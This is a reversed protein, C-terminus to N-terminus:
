DQMFSYPPWPGTLSLQFGQAVLNRAERAAATKLRPSASRPVLFAADLVLPGGEASLETAPRRRAEAALQSWREFLETAVARARKARNVVDDRLAKKQQLYGSGSAPLRPTDTRRSAAAPTRALSLRMGWEHMRSVRAVLRDIQARQEDIHRLARGDDSFMTFLKMPLVADATLFSAVVREHAVAARSVWNLDAMGRALEAEGYHELPVDSVALWVHPGAALLRVPGAHPVGELGRRVRPTTPHGVLGYAYTVATM